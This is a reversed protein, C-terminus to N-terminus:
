IEPHRRLPDPTFGFNHTWFFSTMNPSPAWFAVRQEALSKPCNRRWKVREIEESVQTIYDEQMRPVITDRAQSNKLHEEHNEKIIAALKRKNRLTAM